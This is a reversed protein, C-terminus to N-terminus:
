VMTKGGARGRWSLIFTALAYIFLLHLIWRALGLAIAILFVFFAV